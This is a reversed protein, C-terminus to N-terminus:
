NDEDGDLIGDMNRDIALREGTGPAACTFTLEQGPSDALSLLQSLDFTADDSRDTRFAGSSLMLAGRSEDESVGKLISYSGFSRGSCVLIGPPM